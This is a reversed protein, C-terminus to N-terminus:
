KDVETVDDTDTGMDGCETIDDSKATIDNGTNLSFLSGEQGEITSDLLKSLSLSNEQDTFLNTQWHVDSRIELSSHGSCINSTLSNNLTEQDVSNNLQETDISNNLPGLESTASFDDNDIPINITSILPNSTYTSTDQSISWSVQANNPMSNNSTTIDDTKTIVDDTSPAPLMEFAYIIRNEDNIYRLQVNDEQM